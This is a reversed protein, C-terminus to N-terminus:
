GLRSPAHAGCTTVDPCRWHEIRRFRPRQKVADIDRRMGAQAIARQDPEHDIGEGPDARREAHHDLIDVRLVAPQPHPQALLAALPVCHRAMVIELFIEGGMKVAGLQAPIWFPRQKARDATAGPLEGAGHQRLCVVYAIIRRRAAAAPM